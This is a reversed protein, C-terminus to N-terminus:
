PVHPPSPSHAGPVLSVIAHPLQPVSGTRHVVAHVQSANPVHAPSPTHAGPLLMRVVSPQAGPCDCSIVHLAIHM